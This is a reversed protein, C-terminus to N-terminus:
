PQEARIWNSIPEFIKKKVNAKYVRGYPIKNDVVTFPCMLGGTDIDKLNQLAKTLGQGNLEGATDARKLCEVFVFPNKATDALESSFSTSSYLIKYRDKIEPSMAKGLATSEGYMAVPNDRAMIRKFAAVAVDVKYTGDEMIYKIKKGNIGGEENAMMLADELGANIHVGAFAFRGTVPQVAGIKIEDVGIQIVKPRDLQVSMLRISVTEDKGESLTIWRNETEYGQAQVEVKYRGPDLEMGQYFVPAINLIRVHAEEPTTEIFLRAKRPSSRSLDVYLSIARGSVVKIRKEYPDYYGTAEVRLRHTGPSVSEDGLPTNGVSRGDLIVRAGKVNANVSLTTKRSPNRRSVTAGSSAVFIFEGGRDGTNRIPRCLSTQESNNGIIPAIRTYLEQTTLYPKENKQLEKLLQYAFISHGEAGDDSVPTKNGSTIGWRSKENYLSLYYKDTIVPQISRTQGFLTGSYCSDSILLVHRALMNSMAKQVFINDLYTEPNGAEADVPIWWGDNYQRDLDGHGAYYILVSDGAKASAALRRLARYIASRTAKSGLMMEVQFGYKDQLIESLARADYEATNLDAIRQDRYDDIGIVLARYNGLRGSHHSLDKIVRIARFGDADADAMVGLVLGILVLGLLAKRKM